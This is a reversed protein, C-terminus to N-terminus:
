QVCTSFITDQRAWTYHLHTAQFNIGDEYLVNVPAICHRFYVGMRPQTEGLSSKMVHVQCSIVHESATM